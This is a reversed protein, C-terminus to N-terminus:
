LSIPGSMDASPQRGGNCAKQATYFHSLKRLIRLTTRFHIKALKADTIGGVPPMWNRRFKAFLKQTLTLSQRLCARFTPEYSKKIAGRLFIVQIFQLPSGM